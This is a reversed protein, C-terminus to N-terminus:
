PTPSEVKAAAAPGNQPPTGGGFEQKLRTVIDAIGPQRKEEMEKRLQEELKRREETYRKAFQGRQADDLQLGATQIAREIDQVMRKRRMEDRDRLARKEEPSLNAWKAFNEQFRKRQEPSLAEIAKRVNEMEPSNPGSKGQKKKPGAPDETEQSWAPALAVLAVTALILLRQVGAM